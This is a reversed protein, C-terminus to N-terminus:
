ARYCELTHQGRTEVDAMANGLDVVRARMNEPIGMLECFTYVPLKSAVDFVFECQGRDVIGDVLERALRDIEPALAQMVKPSFAPMVVQKVAAHDTPQMGMFNARHLALEGQELDWIVFGEDYSSFRDTDRSVDFVDQYRTLVWFGKTMSSAPVNPVYSPTPPNWHVPDQARWLDFLAHPATRRRRFSIPIM